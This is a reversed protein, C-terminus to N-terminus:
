ALQKMLTDIKAFFIVMLDVMGKQSKPLDDMWSAIDEIENEYKGALMYFLKKMETVTYGRLAFEQLQQLTSTRIETFRKPYVSCLYMSLEHHDDFTVKTICKKTEADMDLKTRRVNSRLSATTSGSKTTITSTVSVPTKGPSKGTTRQTKSPTGQTAQGKRKSFSKETSVSKKSAPSSIM